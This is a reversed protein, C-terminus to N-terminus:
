LYILYLITLKLKICCKLTDSHDEVACPFETNTRIGAFEELEQAPSPKQLAPHFAAKGRAEFSDFLKLCHSFYNSIQTSLPPSAKFFIRNKTAQVNTKSTAPGAKTVVVGLGATATAKARFWHEEELEGTAQHPYAQDTSIGGSVM